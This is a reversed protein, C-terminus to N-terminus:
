RFLPVNCNRQDVRPGYGITSVPTNSTETLMPILNKSMVRAHTNRAVRIDLSGISSAVDMHNIALSDVGGLTELAYLFLPLDFKGVRFAGVYREEKNHAEPLFPRLSEDESPFPGAGHRTYYSRIVGITHVHCSNGQYGMEDLIIKANDFTTNTWTVHPQFGHTEDLLVGQAGEFIMGKSAIPPEDVVQVREVFTKYQDLYWPITSSHVILRMERAAIPDDWDINKLQAAQQLIRQRIITLKWRCIDPDKLDKALLVGDNGYLIHDGRTQGIGLGTSGHAGKGRSIETLRNLARQFPSIILANHDVMTRNLVDVKLKALEQAEMLMQIPNILVFRSLYTKVDPIFSASGFQSFTHHRDDSTIVNHACQVGGNYRVVLDAGTKQVLAHTTIGKGEDGFGIGAIVYAFM